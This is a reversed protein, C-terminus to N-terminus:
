LRAQVLGRQGNVMWRADVAALKEALGEPLGVVVEAKLTRLAVMPAPFEGLAETFPTTPPWPADACLRRYNADGKVIVLSFAALDARLDDPLESFFRRSTYFPHTRVRLRRADLEASLRKGLEVTEDRGSAGLAAFAQDLDPLTTDSVFFPHNKVHLEVVDHGLTLLHDALALDMLCETGANDAIIAVPGRTRALTAVVAATDDVLLDEHAGLFDIQGGGLAKAVNYSLDVRNGWLSGLLLAELRRTPDTPAGALLDATRRPGEGPAWEEAKHSAFPDRGALAGAGFFGTAELLRRYFFSEAFYWPLDLWSRGLYPACAEDWAARDLATERLGRLQGSRLEAMLEDLARAVESPVPELRRRTDSLIDPVRRHLTDWAFSGVDSTHWSRPRGTFGSKPRTTV